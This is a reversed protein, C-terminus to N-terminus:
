HSPEAQTTEPAPAPAPAPTKPKNPSRTRTKAQIKARLEMSQDVISKMAIMIADKETEGPNVPIDHHIKVVKGKEILSTYEHVVTLKGGMLAQLAMQQGLQALYEEELQLDTKTEVDAEWGDLRNQYEELYEESGIVIEPNSGIIDKHIERGLNRTSQLLLKNVDNEGLFQVIDKDGLEFAPSFYSSGKTKGKNVEVLSLPRIIDNRNIILKADTPM